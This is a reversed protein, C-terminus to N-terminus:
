TFGKGRKGKTYVKGRSGGDWEEATKEIIFKEGKTSVVRGDLYRMQLWSMFPRATPSHQRCREPPLSRCNGRSPPRASWEWTVTSIRWHRVKPQQSPKGTWVEVPAAKAAKKPDKPQAVPLLDFKQLIQQKNREQM